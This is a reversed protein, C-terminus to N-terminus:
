SVRILSSRDPVYITLGTVFDWIPDYLKDPNRLAFVWWLQSTAYFQYSVLDPRHQYTYEIQYLTDTGQPLIYQGKWFDLYSVYNSVQPTQYYTSYQNYNVQTM